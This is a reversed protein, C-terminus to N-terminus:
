ERISLDCIRRVNAWGVQSGTVSCTIQLSDIRWSAALLTQVGTLVDGLLNCLVGTFM